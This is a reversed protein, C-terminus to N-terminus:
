RTGKVLYDSVATAIQRRDSPTLDVIKRAPMRSTGADIYGAYPPVDTGSITLEGESTQKAQQRTMAQHLRGTDVLPQAPQGARAKQEVTAPALPPWTGAGKSQFRQETSRNAIDAVQRGVPKLDQARVALAAINAVAKDVGRAEIGIKVLVFCAVV